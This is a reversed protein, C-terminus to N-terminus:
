KKLNTCVIVDEKIPIWVGGVKSARVFTEEKDDDFWSDFAVDAPKGRLNLGRIAGDAFVCFTNDFFETRKYGLERARDSYETRLPEVWGTLGFDRLASRVADDGLIERGTGTFKNTFQPHRALIRWIDDSVFANRGGTLKILREITAAVDSYGVGGTGYEDFEQGSALVDITVDKGDASAGLGKLVLALEQEFKGAVSLGVNSEMIKLLESTFERAELDSIDDLSAAEKAKGLRYPRETMEFNAKPTSDGRGVYLDRTSSINATGASSSLPSVAATGFMQPVTEVLLKNYIFDSLALRMAPTYLQALVGKPISGGNFGPM